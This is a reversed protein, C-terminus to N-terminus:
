AIDRIYEQGEVINEWCNLKVMQPHKGAQILLAVGDRENVTNLYTTKGLGLTKLTTAIDSDDTKLILKTHINSLLEASYHEIRQSAFIIGLGYKRAELVVRNLINYPNDKEKGTPLILRSEDAVVYTEVKEGRRRKEEPRKSYEGLLKCKRFIRQISLDIFFLAYEPKATNTFGTLDIRNLGAVLKPKQQTFINMGAFIKIYESLSELTRKAQKDNYRDFDIRHVEVSSGFTEREGKLYELFEKGSEELTKILGDLEQSYKSATTNSTANDLKQKVQYAKEAISFYTEDKGNNIYRIVMDYVDKLDSMTPLKRDEEGKRQARAEEETLGVDLPHSENDEFAWTGPLDDFIGKYKYTDELLSKLVGQQLAGMGPMFNKKFIDIIVDVRVDPGGNKIDCDFEFPNIGFETNRATYEVLNEGPTELDGHLDFVMLIKNDLKLEGILARILISKGSGSPGAILIHPNTTEKADPDYIVYEGKGSQGFKKGLVYKSM